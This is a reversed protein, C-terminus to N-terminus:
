ECAASAAPECCQVNGAHSDATPFREAVRCWVEASSPVTSAHARPSDARNWIGCEALQKEISEEYRTYAASDREM